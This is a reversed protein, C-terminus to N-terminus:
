MTPSTPSAPTASTNRVVASWYGDPSTASQWNAHTMWNGGNPGSWTRYQVVGRTLGEAIAYGELEAVLAANSALSLPANEDPDTALNFLASSENDYRILKKGDQRIVAWRGIRTEPDAGDSGQHEFVLYDRERMRGEGTLTPAISTGDIGVPTEVGALDAATAMFDALDTRYDDDLRTRDHGALLRRGARSHRRRLARVQRRPVTGNADFFDM